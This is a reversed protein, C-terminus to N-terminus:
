EALAPADPVVAQEPGAGGPELGGDDMMQFVFLSVVAVLTVIVFLVHYKKRFM